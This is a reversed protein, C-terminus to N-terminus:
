ELRTERDRLALLPGLREGGKSVKVVRKKRRLDMNEMPLQSGRAAKRKVTRFAWEPRVITVLPPFSAGNV